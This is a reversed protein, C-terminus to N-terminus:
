GKVLTFGGQGYEQAAASIAELQSANFKKAAYDTFGPGLGRPGGMKKLLERKDYSIFPNAKAKDLMISPSCLLYDKLKISSFRSLATFERLATVNMGIKMIYTPVGKMKIWYERSVKLCLGDPTRRHYECLGLIAHRVNNKSPSDQASFDSVSTLPALKGSLASHLHKPDSLLLVMDNSSFQSFKNQQNMRSMGDRDIKTQVVIFDCKMEMSKKLPKIDLKIPHIKNKPISSFDSLTQAKAEQLCLPAWKDIYEECSSFKNPIKLSSQDESESKTQVASTKMHTNLSDLFDWDRISKWFDNITWTKKHKKVSPRIHTMKSSSSSSAIVLNGLTGSSGGGAKTITQKSAKKQIELHNKAEQVVQGTTSVSKNEINNNLTRKMITPRKHKTISKSYTTSSTLNKKAEDYPLLAGSKVQVTPKLMGELKKRQMSQLLQTQIRRQQSSSSSTLRKETSSSTKRGSSSQAKAATAVRNKIDIGSIQSAVQRQKRLVELEKASRSSSSSSSEYTNQRSRKSSVPATTSPRRKNSKVKDKSAPISSSHKYGKKLRSKSSTHNNLSNRDEVIDEVYEDDSSYDEDFFGM